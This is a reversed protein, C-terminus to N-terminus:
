DTLVASEDAQDPQAGDEALPTADECRLSIRRGRENVDLIEFTYRRGTELDQRKPAQSVHCLGDVGPALEVFFGYDKKSRVLGPVADGVAAQSLYTDWTDPQLQKIGLSLRRNPVDVNLIVTNIQQGKSAFDKPKRSRADWALDSVHVLGEIGAVIEVFLGYDVVRRVTGALVQGVEFGAGYQDWPDPALQKFSLSIRRQKSRVAVVVAETEAGPSFTKSPHKLQRSWDIESIHILGEVGAELRVFAGYDTVSAVTGRVRDGVAYREAITAWPDPHMARLSLAVREKEPEVRLVKATVEQGTQVLESPNGVRGYSLETLKILGDIGGLDVFVGYSTINKVIGTATEGEVLRALTEAQRQQREAKLLESRSVVANSRRRNCDVVVVETEQGVWADLDRAPRIDVLSGPLFASVGIDVRLGGKVREVVRAQLPTRAAFAAEVRDWAGAERVRRHALLAPMGPAGLREVVVDIEQGIQAVIEGNAQRFEELPVRGEVKEGFAVLADTEGVSVIVGKCRSGPRLQTAAAPEPEILAALEDPALADDGADEDDGAPVPLGPIASPAAAPAELQSQSALAGESVADNRPEDANAPM